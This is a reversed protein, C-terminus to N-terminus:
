WLITAVVMPAQINFFHWLNPQYSRFCQGKTAWIFDLFSPSLGFTVLYNDSLHHILCFIRDLWFHITPSRLCLGETDRRRGGCGCRPWTEGILTSLQTSPFIFVFLFFWWIISFLHFSVGTVYEFHFTPCYESQVSNAFFRCRPWTQRILAVVQNVFHRRYVFLLTCGVTLTIRVTAIGM